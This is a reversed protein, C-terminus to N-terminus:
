ILGLKLIKARIAHYDSDDSEVFGTFHEDISKLMMAGEPTSDDLSILATKIMAVDREDLSSNVCINMEPIEDSFRVIRLGESLYKQAIWEALAGADFDGSLVAKAVDDHHGLYHYYRLDEIDIGADRLVLRPAIHGSSSQVDGFAFTRGRLDEVSKIDSDTRTVIASRHYPKGDRLGKVLVKVGYDKHAAIYTAPGLACLQTYNEGIDKLAGDFDVAVKVEMKKGLKSGLYAVLPAFKKYMVVPSELPLVGFRLLSGREESFRFREMEVKVLESDKHLERLTSSVRFALKRNEVPINKVGELSNLIYQSGAKHESLANSIHHSRESVLEMTQSIQKISITQEETAKTVHQSADRMKEMAAIIFQIGKTEEATAKAIQDTMNWVREMAQSVLKTAKAQETTSREISLAMESSKRSSELIKKLADGAEKSLHLGEEVSTLGAEMTEVASRVEQQVSQILSAIEQTSFTTREALDKIEEAVVSFGKGHEGAQAALIAANLALLTTQDTVDDIVTLIKGIEDSRGGLRGIYDATREVSSKINKMGEITKEISAMGFTAADSTVKESLKASEKANLEVEKIVSTIQSVASLTEESAGALEDANSAVERITASLEEISSSTSEVAGSLDHINENVNSISSVMEEVSASAEGASVALADTSDAIKIITANLEEVSSSISNIAEGEVEAGKVINKSEKEVDESVKAIRESQGKIRQIIGGLSRLSEKFLRGLNGIEDNRTVDVDFSFDGESIKAAAKDLSKVPAIVMKRLVIGILVTFIFSAIISVIIWTTVLAMSRGYEREISLSVKVAGLLKKEGGHCKLCAAENRLPFSFIIRTKDRQLTSEKGAKLEKMLAAEKVPSGETFAERGDSDFVSIEEVGRIGKLNSILNKTTEAKGELMTTEIDKLVISATNRGISATIDYLTTKLVYVMFIGAIVSGILLLAVVLVIIKFELSKKIDM